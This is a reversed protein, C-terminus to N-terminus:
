TVEGARRVRVKGSVWRQGSGLSTDVPPEIRTRERIRRVIRKAIRWSCQGRGARWIVGIGIGGEGLIEPQRLIHDQLESRFREVSEVMGLEANWIISKRGVGGSYICIGEEAGDVAGKIRPVDLEAHVQVPLLGTNRMFVVRLGDNWNVLPLGRRQGLEIALGHTM